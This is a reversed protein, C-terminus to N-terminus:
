LLSGQATKRAPRALCVKWHEDSFEILPRAEGVTMRDVRNGERLWLAVERAVDKAHEPRDVTVGVFHGQPCRALYAMDTDSV